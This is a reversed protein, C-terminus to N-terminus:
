STALNAIIAPTEPAKDVTGSEGASCDNSNITNAKAPAPLAAIHQASKGPPTVTAATAPMLTVTTTPNAVEMFHNFM